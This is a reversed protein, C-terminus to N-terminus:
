AARRFRTCMGMAAFAALSLTVPEPVPASLDAFGGSGATSVRGYNLKWKNYDFGDVDNDGDADAFLLTGTDGVSNRWVAYDAADVKGNRNFDGEVLSPLLSQTANYVEAPGAAAPTQAWAILRVDAFRNWSDQDLTISGKIQRTVGPTLSVNVGSLFHQWLTNRPVTSQDDYIGYRDLAEVMYLHATRAPAGNQLGVDITVEYDRGGTHVANLEITVDTAVNSRTTASNLYSNYVDASGVKEITGDIWATPYSALDYYTLGRWQGWPKVYRGSSSTFVEIPIFLNPHDAMLDDTAQAAAMCHPCWSASFKELLVIRQASWACSASTIPAALLLLLASRWRNRTLCCM